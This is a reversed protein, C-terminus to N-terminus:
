VHARGIEKGIDREIARLAGFTAKMTRKEGALTLEVSNTIVDM